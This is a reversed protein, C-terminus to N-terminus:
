WMPFHLSLKHKGNMRLNSAYKAYTFGAKTTFSNATDTKFQFM